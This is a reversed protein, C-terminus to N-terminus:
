AGIGVDRGPRGVDGVKKLFDRRTQMKEGTRM